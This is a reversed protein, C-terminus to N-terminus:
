NIGVREIAERSSRCFSKERPPAVACRLSVNLHKAKRQATAGSRSFDKLSWVQLVDFYARTLDWDKKTFVVPRPPEGSPEAIEDTTTPRSDGNVKQVQSPATQVLLFIIASSIWLSM